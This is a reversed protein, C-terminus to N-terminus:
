ATPGKWTHLSLAPVLTANKAWARRVTVAADADRRLQSWMRWEVAFGGEARLWRVVEIQARTEPVHLTVEHAEHLERLRSLADEDLVIGAAGETAITARDESDTVLELVSLEMLVTTADILLKM